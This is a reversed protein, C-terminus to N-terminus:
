RLFGTKIKVDAQNISEEIRGSKTTIVPKLVYLEDEDDDFRELLKLTSNTLEIVEVVNDDEWVPPTERSYLFESETNDKWKWYSLNGDDEYESDVYEVFYTGAKSFLVSLEYSTGTVDVGNVSVMEWTRCFLDTRTTNEMEAGKTASILIENNPDNALKISFSISNDDINSISITGLDSLTITKNDIIEYTGFLIVEDNTSKTEADKVVIYNGSENFEFSKYVSSGDTLWKASITEKKLTESPEDDSCSSILSFVFIVSLILQSSKM